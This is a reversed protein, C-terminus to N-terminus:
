SFAALAQHTVGPFENTIQIANEKTLNHFRIVGINRDLLNCAFLRHHGDIVRGDETILIGDQCPNFKGKKAAEVMGLVKGYNGEKQIPILNKAPISECTYSYANLFNEKVEGELQPM